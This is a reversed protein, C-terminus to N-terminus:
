ARRRLGLVVLVIAILTPILYPIPVETFWQRLLGFAIDVKQATTEDATGLSTLLDAAQYAQWFWYLMPLIVLLAAALFFARRNM